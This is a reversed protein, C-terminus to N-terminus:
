KLFREMNEPTLVENELMSKFFLQKDEDTKLTHSYEKIFRLREVMSKNKLARHIPDEGRQTAELHNVFEEFAKKNGKFTENVFRAKAEPTPPVANSWTIIAQDALRHNAAQESGTDQEIDRLIDFQATREDDAYAESFRKKLNQTAYYPNLMTRGAGGTMTGVLNEIKMPSVNILDGIYVAMASTDHDWQDKPKANIYKDGVIKRGTWFNVNYTTELAGKVLPPVSSSAIAEPSFQGERAFDIPSIASMTEMAIDAFDKPAKGRMQEYMLELPSGLIRGIRGKPIMSVQTYKKDTEDRERGRIFIFNDDKERQSINDWTDPFNMTNWVYTATVPLGVNAAARLAFEHPRKRAAEILNVSGQVNANLFPIWMNWIRMQTGAKMFDVSANRANFAAEPPSMGAKLGKQFVGLRTTEESIRSAEKIWEFPNTAKFVRDSISPAIIEPTLKAGANISGMMGTNGGGTLFYQQYFKDKRFASLMGRLYHELDFGVKSILAADQPDRIANTFIFPLSFTTAGARLWRGSGAAMKTMLDVSEENLGKVADAIMSEKSVAWEEKVGNRFVHITDYGGPALEESALASKTKYATLFNDKLVKAATPNSKAVKDIIGKPTKAESPRITFTWPKTPNRRDPVDFYMTPEDDYFSDKMETKKTFKAGVAEFPDVAKTKGLQKLPIDQIKSLRERHEFIRGRTTSYEDSLKMLEDFVPILRRERTAIKQRIMKIESEPLEMFNEIFKKTDSQAVRKPVNHMVETVGKGPVLGQPTETVIRQPKTKLFRREVFSRKFVEKPLKLSLKLGQTELTKLEGMLDGIQEERTGVMRGIKNRLPIWEKLDSALNIRELVNESKRLPTIIKELEPNYKSFNTLKQLVRTRQALMENNHAYRIMATLPREIDKETGVVAKLNGPTFAELTRSGRRIAGPNNAMHELAMYPVHMPNERMLKTWTEHTIVGVQRLSSLSERTINRLEQSLNRIHNLGENGLAKRLDGIIAISDAETHGLPNTFGKSSRELNREAVLLQELPKVWKRNNDILAKFKRNYKYDIRESVSAYNRAAEYPKDRFKMPHGTITEVQEQIWRIPAHRDIFRTEFFQGQKKAKMVVTAPDTKNQELMANLEQTAKGGSVYDGKIVGKSKLFKLVGPAAEAGVANVAGGFLAATPVTVTKEKWSSKPAYALEVAGAGMGGKVYNSVFRTAKKVNQTGGLMKAMIGTEKAEKTIKLGANLLEAGKVGLGFVKAPIFTGLGVVTGAGRFVREVPNGSELHKIAEKGGKKEIAALPYGLLGSNIAGISFQEAAGKASFGKDAPKADALLDRPATHALLDKPKGALLDVPM